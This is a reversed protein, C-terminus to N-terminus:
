KILFFFILFYKQFYTDSTKNLYIHSFMTSKTDFYALAYSMNHALDYACNKYYKPYLGKPLYDLVNLLFESICFYIVKGLATM